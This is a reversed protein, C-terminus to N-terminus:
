RVHFNHTDHLTNADSYIPSFCPVLSDTIIMGSLDLGTSAGACRTRQWNVVGMYLGQPVCAKTCHTGYLPPIFLIM